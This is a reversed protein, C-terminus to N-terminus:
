AKTYAEWLEELSYGTKDKFIETTFDGARFASHLVDIVDNCYNAEIFKLFAATSRYGATMKEGHYGRPLKWGAAENNVGFLERGYDALGEVLWPFDYKPYHQAVHILEHTMCDIDEPHKILWEPNLGVHRGGRTYAVGKYEPEISYTVDVPEGEGFREWIKLYTKDFADILRYVADRPLADIDGVVTLKTHRIEM